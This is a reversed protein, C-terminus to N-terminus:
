CKPPPTPLHPMENKPKMRATQMLGSCLQEGFAQLEPCHGTDQLLSIGLCWRPLCTLLFAPWRALGSAPARAGTYRLLELTPPCGAGPEAALWLRGLEWNQIRKRHTPRQNRLGYFPFPEVQLTATLGRQCLFCWLSPQRWGHHPWKAHSWRPARPFSVVLHHGLPTKGLRPVVLSGKDPPSGPGRGM